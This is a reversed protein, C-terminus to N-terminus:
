GSYSADHMPWLLNISPHHRTHAHGAPQCQHQHPTRRCTDPKQRIARNLCCGSVRLHLGRWCLHRCSVRGGGGGRAGDAEEGTELGAGSCGSWLLCCAHQYVVYWAFATNCCSPAAWKRLHPQQGAQGAGLWPWAGQICGRWWAIFAACGSEVYPGWGGRDLGGKGCSQLWREVCPWCVCCM